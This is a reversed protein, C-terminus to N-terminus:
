SRGVIMILTRSHMIKHICFINAWIQDQKGMYRM